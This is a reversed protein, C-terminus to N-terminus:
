NVDDCLRSELIRIISSSMVFLREDVWWDTYNSSVKTWGDKM